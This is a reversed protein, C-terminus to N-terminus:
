ASIDARDEGEILLLADIPSALLVYVTSRVFLGALQLWFAM